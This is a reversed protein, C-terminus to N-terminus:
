NLKVQKEKEIKGMKIRCSMREGARGEAAVGRVAPIENCQVGILLHFIWAAIFVELICVYIIEVRVAM